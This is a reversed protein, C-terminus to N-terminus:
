PPPFSVVFLQPPSSRGGGKKGEICVNSGLPAEVRGKGLMPTSSSGSCVFHSFSLRASRLAPARSDTRQGNGLSGHDREAGRGRGTGMEAPPPQLTWWIRFGEGNILKGRVSAAFVTVSGTTRSM